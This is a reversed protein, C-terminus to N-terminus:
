FTHSFKVTFQQGIQFSDGVNDFVRTRIFVGSINDHKSIKWRLETYIMNHMSDDHPRYSVTDSFMGKIRGSFMEHSAYLTGAHTELVRPSYYNYEFESADRTIDKRLFDMRHYTYSLDMLTNGKLVHVIPSASMSLSANNNPAYGRTYYNGEIDANFSFYSSLSYNGGISFGHRDVRQLLIDAKSDEHEKEYAFNFSCSQGISKVARFYWDVVSQEEMSYYKFVAGGFFILSEGFAKSIEITGAQRTFREEGSQTRRKIVYESEMSYGDELYLSTGYTQVFQKADGKVKFFDLQSFVQPRMLREIEDMKRQARVNAPDLRLIEEYYKRAKEYVSVHLYTEAMKQYTDLPRTSNKISESIRGHRMKTQRHDHKMARLHDLAKKAKERGPDLKIAESLYRDAEFLKNEWAYELGMGELADVDGPSVELVKRYQERAKKGEGVSAYLGALIKYNELDGSGSSVKKEMLAIREVVSEDEAFSLVAASFFFCMALLITIKEIRLCVKPMM